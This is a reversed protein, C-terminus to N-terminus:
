AALCHRIVDWCENVSLTSEWPNINGVERDIVYSPCVPAKDVVQLRTIVVPTDFAIRHFIHSDLIYDEGESTTFENVVSVNVNEYTTVRDKFASASCRGQTQYYQTPEDTPTVDYIINRLTGKLTYSHFTSGHTHIQDLSRPYFDSNYFRYSWYEGDEFTKMKIYGTGSRAPKRTMNTTLQEITLM